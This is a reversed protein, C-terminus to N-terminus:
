REEDNGPQRFVSWPDEIGRKQAVQRAIRMVETIKFIQRYRDPSVIACPPPRIEGLIEARSAHDYFDSSLFGLEEVAIFRKIMKELVAKSKLRADV